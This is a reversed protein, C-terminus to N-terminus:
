KWYQSNKFYSEPVGLREIEELTWPEYDFKIYGLIIYCVVASYYIRLKMNVKYFKRPVYYVDDEFFQFWIKQFLTKFLDTQRKLALM